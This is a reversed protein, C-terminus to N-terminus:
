FPIDIDDPELPAQTFAERHFADCLTNDKASEVINYICYKKCPTVTRAACYRTFEPQGEIEPVDVQVFPSGVVIYVYGAIVGDGVEVIAWGNWFNEIM